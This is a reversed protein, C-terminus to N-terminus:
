SKAEEKTEEVKEETKKEDKVEEKKEPTKTEKKAEEKVEEKKEEKKEETKEEKPTEKKVEEKKEETKVEDKKEEKKVEEKKTEEGKEPAKEEKPAKEKKEVKLDWLKEVKKEELDKAAADFFRALASIPSKMSGVLRGLLTERSPMSAILKTEELDKLEWEFISAVWLMKEEKKTEKVFDNVKSLWAIADDNSCVFGVQWEFDSINIEIDLAEKLARKVLTKKALTYTADVERLNKRLNAFEEVNVTNTSAFGISKANKFKEVLEALIEQKKQKSVAM